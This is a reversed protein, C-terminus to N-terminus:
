ERVFDGGRRHFFRERDFGDTLDFEGGVGGFRGYSLRDFLNERRDLGGFLRNGFLGNNGFLRAGLLRGILIREGLLRDGVWWFGLRDSVVLREVEFRDLFQLVDGD